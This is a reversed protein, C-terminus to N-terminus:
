SDFPWDNEYCRRRSSWFWRSVGGWMGICEDQGLVECQERLPCVACAGAAAYSDYAELPSMNLYVRHMFMSPPMLQCPLFQDSKAYEAFDKEADERSKTRKFDSPM